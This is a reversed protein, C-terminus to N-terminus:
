KRRRIKIIVGIITGIIVFIGVWIGIVEYLAWVHFGDHWEFVRRGGEDNLYGYFWYMGPEYAHFILKKRFTQNPAITVNEESSWQLGPGKLLYEFTGALFKTGINTVEFSVYFNTGQFCEHWIPISPSEETKALFQYEEEQAGILPISASILFLLIICAVGLRM